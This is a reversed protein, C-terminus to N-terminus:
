KGFTARSFECAFVTEVFCCVQAPSVILLYKNCNQVPKVEKAPPCFAEPGSVSPFVVEPRHPVFKNLCDGLGSKETNEVRCVVSLLDALGSARGYSLVAQSWNQKRGVLANTIGLDDDADRCSKKRPKSLM